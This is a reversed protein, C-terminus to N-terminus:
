PRSPTSLWLSISFYLFKLVTCSAHLCSIFLSFRICVQSANLEYKRVVKIAAEGCGGTNDLARYVNSFAGDGMKEILTYRELGPYKPLKEKSEKEEAVIKALMADDYRGTGAANGGVVIGAATIGIGPGTGSVVGPDLLHRHQAVVNAVRAQAQAANSRNDRVAVSHDIHPYVKPQGNQEGPDSHIQRNRSPPADHQM